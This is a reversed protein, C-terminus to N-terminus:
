SAKLAAPRTAQAYVSLTRQVMADISYDNVASQRAARSLHMRRDGDEVVSRMKAFFDDVDGTAFLLGNTDHKVLEPNGGADSAIIPKAMAMGELISFSCSEIYSPAVLVDLSKLASPVESHSVNGIVFRGSLDREESRKALEAKYNEFGKPADGIVVFRVDPHIQRLKAAAEAFDLQGKNPHVRGVMGITMVDEDEFWNPLGQLDARLPDFRDVDVGNPIVAIPTSRAKLGLENAMFSSDTIVQDARLLARRDLWAYVQGLQSSGSWNTWGFCSSVLPRGTRRAAALGVIDARHDISHIVDADFTRILAPLATVDSMSFRDSVEILHLPIDKSRAAEMWAPQPESEDMKRTACVLLVEHGREM